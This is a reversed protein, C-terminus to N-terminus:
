KHTDFRTWPCESPEPLRKPEHLENADVPNKPTAAAPGIALQGYEREENSGGLSESKKQELHGAFKHENM